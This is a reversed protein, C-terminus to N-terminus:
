KLTDALMDVFATTKEPVGFGTALAPTSNIELLYHEKTQENILLDVGTIQQNTAEAAKKADALWSPDLESVDVFVAEGGKSTNNLHSGEVARRLFVLPERKEGVFLVRYDGVNPIYNQIIFHKDPYEAYIEDLRELDEVLFNHDGRSGDSDKVIFPLKFKTSGDGNLYSKANEPNTCYLSDPVPLGSLALKFMQSLKGLCMAEGVQQNAHPVDHHALYQALVTTEELNYIWNKLHVFAADKLDIGSRMDHIVVQGDIVTYIMDGTTTYSVKAELKKEQLQKTVNDCFAQLYAAREQWAVTKESMSTVILIQKM